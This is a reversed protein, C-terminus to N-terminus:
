NAHHSTRLRRRPFSLFKKFQVNGQPMKMNEKQDRSVVIAFSRPLCPLLHGTTYEKFDSNFTREFKSLDM